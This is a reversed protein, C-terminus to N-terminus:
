DQTFAIQRFHCGLFTAMMRQIRCGNWYVILYWPKCKTEGLCFNQSPPLSKVSKPPAGELVTHGLLWIYPLTMQPGKRHM